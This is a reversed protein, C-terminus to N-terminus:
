AKVGFIRLLSKRKEKDASGPRASVVRAEDTPKGYKSATNTTATQLLSRPQTFPNGAPMTAMRSAGAASFGNGGLSAETPPWARNGSLPDELVSGKLQPVDGFGMFGYVEGLDPKPPPPAQAQVRDLSSNDSSPDTSSAWQDSTTNTTANSGTTVTDYSRQYAHVPYVGPRGNRATNPMPESAMRPAYRPRYYGNPSPSSADAYSDPRENPSQYIRNAYFGNVGANNDRGPRVPHQQHPGLHFHVFFILM